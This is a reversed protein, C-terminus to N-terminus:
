AKLHAMEVKLKAPEAKLKALEKESADKVQKFRQEAEVKCIHTGQSLIVM